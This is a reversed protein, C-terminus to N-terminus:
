SASSAGGPSTRSQLGLNEQTDYLQQCTTRNAELDIHAEQALQAFTQRAVDAFRDRFLNLYETLPDYIDQMM